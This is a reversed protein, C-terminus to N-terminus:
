ISQELVPYSTTLIYESYESNWTCTGPLSCEISAVRPDVPAAPHPETSFITQRLDPTSTSFVVASLIQM